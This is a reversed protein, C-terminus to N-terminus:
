QIKSTIYQNYLSVKRYLSETFRVGKLKAYKRRLLLDPQQM